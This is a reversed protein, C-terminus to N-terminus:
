MDGDVRYDSRALNDAARRLLGRVEEVSENMTLDAKALQAAVTSETNNEASNAMALKRLIMRKIEADRSESGRSALDASRTRSGTDAVAARPLARPGTNVAPTPTPRPGPRVTPTRQPERVVTNPKPAPPRPAVTNQETSRGSDPEPVIATSPGQDSAPPEPNQVAPRTVGTEPKEPVSMEPALLQSHMIIGFALLATAFGALAAGFARRPRRSRRRVPKREMEDRLKYAFSEALWESPEEDMWVAMVDRLNSVQAQEGACEACRRIHRRLDREERPSLEGDVSASILIKAKNCRM